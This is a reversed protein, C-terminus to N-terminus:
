KKNLQNKVAELFQKSIFSPEVPVFKFAIKTFFMFEVIGVFTFIIANELLIEGIHVDANCSKKLIVVVVVLGIWLLVNVFFITNFLGKNHMEVAKDPKSYAKILAELPIEDIVSKVNENEKLEKVKEGLTDHLLNSIEENFADKTLKSIYFSFFISLFSFLILSHMYLNINFNADDFIKKVFETM